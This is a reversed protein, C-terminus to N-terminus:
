TGPNAQDDEPREMQPQIDHEEAVIVNPMNVQDAGDVEEFRGFKELPRLGRFTVQAGKRTEEDKRIGVKVFQFGMGHNVGYYWFNTGIRPRINRRKKWFNGNAGYSSVTELLSSPTEVCTSTNELTSRIIEETVTIKCGQVNAEIQGNQGNIKASGWFEIIARECIVPNTRLAYAIMCTNLGIIISKFEM